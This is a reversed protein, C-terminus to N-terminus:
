RRPLLFAPPLEALAPVVREARCGDPSRWEDLHLRWEGERPREPRLVGRRVVEFLDSRFRDYAEGEAQGALRSTLLVVFVDRVPDIWLTTGTFGTHGFASPSLVEGWFTQATPREWGVGFRAAGGDGRTFDRLVDRCVLRFPKEWLLAGALRALDGASSFLGANGAVGGLGRAIPDHVVGRYRGGQARGGALDTPVIEDAAMGRELPRFGTRTMGLPGYVRRELYAELPEGTVAEVVWATLIPGLDSYLERDGPHSGLPLRALGRIRAPRDEGMRWVPAGEPLGATHALLHRLTVAGRPAAAPWDPLYASLPADLDLRGEDVLLMVALTTATVKTLSALDFLTRPDVAAADAREDLRGWGRALVVRGGQGLALAFGPSVGEALAGRVVAELEAPFWRTFGPVEASEVAVAPDPLLAGDGQVSPSQAVAPAALFLLAGLAPLARVPKM